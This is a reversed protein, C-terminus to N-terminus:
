PAKPPQHFLPIHGPVINQKHSVYPEADCPMETQGDPWGKGRGEWGDPCTAKIDRKNSNYLCLVLNSDMLNKVSRSANHSFPTHPPTPPPCRRLYLSLICRPHSTKDVFERCTHFVVITPLSVHTQRNVSQQQFLSMATYEMNVWKNALRHQHLAYRELDATCSLPEAKRGVQGLGQKVRAVGNKNTDSGYRTEQGCSTVVVTIKIKIRFHSTPQEGTAGAGGAAERGTRIEGRRTLIPVLCDTGNGSVIYRERVINAISEKNRREESIVARM